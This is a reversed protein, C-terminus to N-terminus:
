VFVRFTSEKSPLSKHKEKHIPFSFLTNFPKEKQGFLVPNKKRRDNVAAKLM